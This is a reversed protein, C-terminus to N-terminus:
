TRPRRTVMAAYGQYGELRQADRLRDSRALSQMVRRLREPLRVGGNRALVVGTVEPEDSRLHVCWGKDSRLAYGFEHLTARVVIEFDSPLDPWSWSFALDDCYRTYRAGAAEARRALRVDLERNVFNSLGPSTPAGQPLGGRCTTLLTLLRATDGDVRERWWDEVRDARTSPFFDRVDATVIVEAGAHAWVHHATSKGRQYAVAAPHPQEAAFYRAIIAYQLRKLLAGPEDIQRLGGGKKPKSYHHYHFHPHLSGTEVVDRLAQPPLRLQVLLSAWGAEFSFAGPRAPPPVSRGGRLARWLPGLVSWATM